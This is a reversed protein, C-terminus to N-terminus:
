IGPPAEGGDFFMHRFAMLTIQLPSGGPHDLPCSFGSGLGLFQHSLDQFVPRMGLLPESGSQADHPEYLMIGRLPHLLGGGPSQCDPGARVLAHFGDQFIAEIALKEEEFEMLLRLRSGMVIDPTSVVVVTSLLRTKSLSCVM